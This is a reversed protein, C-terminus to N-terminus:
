KCQNLAKSQFFYLFFVRACFVCNEQSKSIYYIPPFRLAFRKDFLAEREREEFYDLQPIIRPFRKKLFAMDAKAAVTMSDSTYGWNVNQRSAPYLFALQEPNLAYDSKNIQAIDVFNEPPNFQTRERVEKRKKRIFKIISSM